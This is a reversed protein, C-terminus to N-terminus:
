PVFRRFTQPFQANGFFSGCCSILYFKPTKRQPVQFNWFTRVQSIVSYDIDKEWEWQSNNLKCISDLSQSESQALSVLKKSTLARWQPTLALFVLVYNPIVLPITSLFVVLIVLFQYLGDGVIPYIENVSRIHITEYM